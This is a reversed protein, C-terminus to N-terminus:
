SRSIEKTYGAPRTDEFCGLLNRRISNQLVYAHPFRSLCFELNGHIKSFIKQTLQSSLIRPGFVSDSHCKITMLPSVAMVRVGKDATVM